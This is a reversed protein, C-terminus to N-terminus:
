AGPFLQVSLNLSDSVESNSASVSGDTLADLIQLIQNGDQGKSLLSILVDRSM